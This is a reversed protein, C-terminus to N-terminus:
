ATAARGSPGEPGGPASRAAAAGTAEVSVAEVLLPRDMTFGYRARHETAFAETMAPATDLDVPLSADTGPYRLYVRAHTSIVDDALGDARLEARTRAALDDHLEGLRTRTGEDDLEAEVSQERMATADALGIGYASLVGALPPVLVTDVGLADAVACAHQGGAGGFSTLAYRTIDHGREVSIKKVANAMNLVAIELFGAAVEAATRRMGTARAVDDALEGFRERVVDADLPLDGDPGFVAPFHAPQVRGLM